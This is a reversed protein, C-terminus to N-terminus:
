PEKFNLFEPEPIETSVQARYQRRSIGEVPAPLGELSRDRNQWRWGRQRGGKGQHPDAGPIGEETQDYSQFHSRFYPFTNMNRNLCPFIPSVNGTGYSILYGSGTLYDYLTTTEGV